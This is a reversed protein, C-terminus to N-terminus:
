WSIQVREGLINVSKRRKGRLERTEACCKTKFQTLNLKVDFLFRGTFNLGILVKVASCLFFFNGNLIEEAFTVLNKISYKM